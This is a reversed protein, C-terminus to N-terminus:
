FYMKCKQWIHLCHIGFGARELRRSRGKQLPRRAVPGWDHRHILLLLISVLAQFLVQNPKLPARIIRWVCSFSKEARKLKKYKEIPPSSPLHVFFNILREYHSVSLGLAKNDNGNITSAPRSSYLLLGSGRCCPDVVLGKALVAEKM